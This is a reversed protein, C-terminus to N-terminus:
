LYASSVHFSEKLTDSSFSPIGLLAMEGRVPRTAIRFNFYALLDSPIATDFVRRLLNAAFYKRRAATTLWGLERRYPSIHDCRRVGFIYRIGCNVLKQMKVDLEKSLHCYVLCCYDIIPLLLMQILHKRLRLNTRKRFYYLRYMLSHVRRSMHVLHEKWSLKLDLVVGLNRLSSEYVVRAGCIDVYTRAVLFLRNIYYPTGIVIAQTNFHNVAAIVDSVQVEDFTFQESHNFSTLFNM